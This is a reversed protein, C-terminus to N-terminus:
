QAMRRDSSAAAAAVLMGAPAGLHAAVPIVGVAGIAAGVLDFAYFRGIADRGAVLLASVCVGAFVFPLTASAYILLLYRLTPPNLGGRLEIGTPQFHLLCLVCVLISLGCLSGHVAISGGIGHDSHLGPRYHVILAGLSFGLLALSIAVYAFHYLLVVSFIRTLLIEYLLVSFSILGLAIPLRHRMVLGGVRRSM